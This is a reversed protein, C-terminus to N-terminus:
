EAALAEMPTVSAARWAPVWAAIIAVGGLLLGVAVFTVPDLAQVGVLLGSIFRTMVVAVVTGLSVGLAALTVGETVM